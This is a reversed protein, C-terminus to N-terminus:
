TTLKFMILYPELEKKAKKADKKNIFIYQDNMTKIAGCKELIHIYLEVDINLKQAIRKYWSAFICNDIGLTLSYTNEEPDWIDIRIKM